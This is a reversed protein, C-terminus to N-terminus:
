KMVKLIEYINRNMGTVIRQVVTLFIPMSIGLVLLGVSITIPFGMMFINIQPVSRAIVGMAVNTFLLALMVPAGLKLGIVFMSGAVSMLPKAAVGMFVGGAPPVMQLSSLIASIFYHHANILFFIMLALLSEFAAMISAQNNTHPDIINVIGFGMQFGIMQGSLEIGAMVLRASFGIAAGIMVESLILMGWAFIDGPVQVPKILPLLMLAITMSLGFRLMPPIGKMWFLPMSTLIALTRIFIFFFTTYNRSILDVIEEM